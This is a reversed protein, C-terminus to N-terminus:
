RRWANGEELHPYAFCGVSSPDGGGMVPQSPHNKAHPAWRDPPPDGTSSIAGARDPRMRREPQTAVGEGNSLFPRRHSDYSDSTTDVGMGVVM